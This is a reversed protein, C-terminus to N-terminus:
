SESEIEKRTESILRKIGGRNYRVKFEESLLRSAAQENSLGKGAILERYITRAREKEGQTSAHRQRGGKSARERGRERLALLMVAEGLAQNAGLLFHIAEFHQSEHACSQALNLNAWGYAINELIGDNHVSVPKVKALFLPVAEMCIQFFTGSLDTIVNGEEDLFQETDRDLIGQLVSLYAVREGRLKEGFREEIETFRDELGFGFANRFLEDLSEATRASLKNFDEITFNMPTTMPADRGHQHKIAFGYSLDDIDIGAHRVALAIARSHSVNGIHPM